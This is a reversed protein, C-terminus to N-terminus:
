KIRCGGSRGLSKSTVTGIAQPGSCDGQDEQNDCFKFGDHLRRFKGATLALWGGPQVASENLLDWATIPNVFQAAIEIPTRSPLPILWEAPVAAYEAWANYYSFAVYTGLELAVAQGVKVVVGAGHNGAIQGPFVPKKPEPYLNEIFLFDGPNVSAAVMRILVEHDGIEPIPIERLQLVDAPSGIKDFVVAKM